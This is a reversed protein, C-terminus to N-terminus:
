ALRWIGLQEWWTRIGGFLVPRSGFTVIAANLWCEKETRQNLANTRLVTDYCGLDYKIESMNIDFVPSGCRVSREVIKSEHVDYGPECLGVRHVEEWSQMSMNNASNLWYTIDLEAIGQGADHWTGTDQVIEWFKSLNMDMSTTVSDLWRMKQQRMRRKGETKGQILTQELSNIRWMLHCFYQLKLKLMLGELSYGPNIEKLISQNARRATWPVRLLRRWCWLEFADARWCEAKKITWSECIYMVALFVMATVICVKILLPIDRSKLVRDLNAMAKRRLLLPRKLEHSCLHNATIQSGLFIFDTVTEMKEGEM